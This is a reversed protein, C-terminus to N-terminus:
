VVEAMLKITKGIDMTYAVMLGYKIAVVMGRIQNLIGSVTM